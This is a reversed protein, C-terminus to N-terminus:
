ENKDMDVYEADIVEDDKKGSDQKPGASSGGPGQEGQPPHQGATKQYMIEALRHSARTLEEAASNLEAAESSSELAKKAKSLAAEVSSADSDPIKERNEKLIKETNYILNDLKNKAEIKERNKQDEDAHSQADKTM